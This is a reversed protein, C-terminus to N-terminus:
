LKGKKVLRDNDYVDGTMPDIVTNYM